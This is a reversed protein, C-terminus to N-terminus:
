FFHRKQPLEAPPEIKQPKRVISAGRADWIRVSRINMMFRPVYLEGEARPYDHVLDPYDDM